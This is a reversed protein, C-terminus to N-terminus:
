GAQTQKVMYWVTQEDVALLYNHDKSFQLIKHAQYVDSAVLCAKLALELLRRAQPDYDGKCQRFSPSFPVIGTEGLQSVIQDFLFEQRHVLSLGLMIKLMNQSHHVLSRQTLDYDFVSVSDEVSKIAQIAEDILFYGNFAGKCTFNTESFGHKRTALTTTLMSSNRKKLLSSMEFSQSEKSRKATKKAIENKIAEAQKKELAKQAIAM